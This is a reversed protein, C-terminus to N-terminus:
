KKGIGALCRNVSDIDFLDPDFGSELLPVFRNYDPDDARKLADTLKSRGMRKLENILWQYDAYNFIEGPPSARGGALCFPYQGNEEVPQEVEYSIAISWNAYDDFDEDDADINFLDDDMMHVHSPSEHRYIIYKKAHTKEAKIVEVAERLPVTALDVEELAEGKGGGEWDESYRVEGYRLLYPFDERFSFLCLVTRRLEELSSDKSILFRRWVNHLHYVHAKMQYVQDSNGSDLESM